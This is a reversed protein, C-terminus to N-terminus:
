EKTPLANARVKKKEVVGQETPLHRALWKLLGGNLV